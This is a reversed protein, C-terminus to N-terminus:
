IAQRGRERILSQINKNVWPKAKLSIEEKSLKRDPENEDLLTNKRAFFLNFALSISIDDLSLINRIIDKLDNEFEDNNFFRYNREVVNNSNILTKPYFDKLILFQPLHELIEILTESNKTM